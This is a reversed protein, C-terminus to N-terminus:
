LNRILKGLMFGGWNIALFVVGWVFCHFAMWRPPVDYWHEYQEKAAKGKKM